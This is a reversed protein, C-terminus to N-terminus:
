IHEKNKNLNLNSNNSLNASKIARFNHKGLCRRWPQLIAGMFFMLKAFYMAFCFVFFYYFLVFLIICFFVFLKM